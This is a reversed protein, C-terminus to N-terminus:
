LFSVQAAAAGAVQLWLGGKIKLVERPHVFGFRKEEEPAKESGCSSPHPPPFHHSCARARKIFPLSTFSPPSVGSCVVADRTLACAHM